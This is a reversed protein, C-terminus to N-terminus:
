RRGFSFYPEEHFRTPSKVLWNCFLQHTATISTAELSTARLATEALLHCAPLRKDRCMGLDQRCSKEPHVCREDERCDSDDRCLLRGIVTGDNGFRFAWRSSDPVM